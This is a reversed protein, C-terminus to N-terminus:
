QKPIIPIKVCTINFSDGVHKSVLELMALKKQVCRSSELEYLTCINFLLGDHLCSSPNNHITKELLHLSEKLKGMYLLCVALNNALMANNPCISFAKEYYKYAEENNNNAIAMLAKNINEEVQFNQSYSKAVTVAKNFCDHAYKVDGLQLYIRGLASYLQPIEEKSREMLTHVISVALVYDKQSLICNLISYLIRKERLGWIELSATRRSDSLKIMTGDEACGNQVNQLIKQIVQLIQYLNDLAIQYNGQYQPLEALLLRLPFPVMTGRKGKYVDPYFEYYLDPKDLDGFAAGEIEAYSYHQLKVLLALRVYWLRLSLPTHKCPKGEDGLGQGCAKLLKKTLNIAANYCGAEDKDSLTKRHQAHISNCQILLQKVPDDLDEELVVCPSTLQSKDLTVPSNSTIVSVLIQRTKESPIWAEEIESNIIPSNLFPEEVPANIIPEKIELVLPHGTPKEEAIKDFFAKGDRDNGSKDESFFKLLIPPPNNTETSASSDECVEQALEAKKDVPNGQVKQELLSSSSDNKVNGAANEALANFFNLGDSDIKQLKTTETGFYKSLTNTDCDASLPRANFTVQTIDASRKETLSLSRMQVSVTESSEVILNPVPSNPVSEQMSLELPVTEMFGFKSDSDVRKITSEDKLNALVEATPKVSSKSSNNEASTEHPIQMMQTDIISSSRRVNETEVALEPATNEDEM